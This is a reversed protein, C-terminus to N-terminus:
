FSQTATLAAVWGFYHTTAQIIASGAIPKIFHGIFVIQQDYGTFTMM